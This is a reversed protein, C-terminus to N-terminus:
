GRKAFDQQARRGVAVEELPTSARLLAQHTERARRGHLGLLPGPGQGGVVMSSVWRHQVKAAFQEMDNLLYELVHQDTLFCADCFMGAPELAEKGYGEVCLGQVSTCRM